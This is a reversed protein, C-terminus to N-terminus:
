NDYGYQFISRDSNYCNLPLPVIIVEWEEREAEPVDFEDYYDEVAQKAAVETDFVGILFIDNDSPDDMAHIVAYVTKNEM